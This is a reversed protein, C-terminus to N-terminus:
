NNRQMETRDSVGAAEIGEDLGDVSRVVDRNHDVVCNVAKLRLRPQRHFSNPTVSSTPPEIRPRQHSFLDSIAYLHRHFTGSQLIVGHPSRHARFPRRHPSHLFRDSPCSSTPGCSLAPIHREM